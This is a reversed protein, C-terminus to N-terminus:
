LAIGGGKKKSRALADIKEVPKGDGPCGHIEKM